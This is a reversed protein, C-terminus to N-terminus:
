PSKPEAAHHTRHDGLRNGLAGQSSALARDYDFGGAEGALLVAPLLWAALLALLRRM